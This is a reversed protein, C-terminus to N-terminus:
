IGRRYYILQLSYGVIEALIFFFMILNVLIIPSSIVLISFATIWVGLVLIFYSVRTTKLEILNDREDEGKEAEKRNAIAIVIQSFIQILIIFVVAGIFLGVLMMNEIEPNNFVKIAFFFYYGFVIITSILSAWISKEKYSLNM